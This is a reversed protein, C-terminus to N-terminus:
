FSPLAPTFPFIELTARASVGPLSEKITELGADHHLPGQYLIRLTELGRLNPADLPAALPSLDPPSGDVLPSIVSIAVIRIAPSRVESLTDIIASSTPNLDHVALAKLRTCVSIDIHSKIVTCFIFNM